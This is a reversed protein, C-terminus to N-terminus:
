RLRQGPRVLLAEPCEFLSEIVELRKELSKLVRDM